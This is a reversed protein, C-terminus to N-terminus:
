VEKLKNHFCKRVRTIKIFFDETKILFSLTGQLAKEQYYFQIGALNQLKVCGDQLM